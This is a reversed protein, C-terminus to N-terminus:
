VSRYLPRACGGLLLDVYKEANRRTLIRRGTFLNELIAITSIGMLTTALRQPDGRAEGAEIGEQFVQAIVDRRREMESLYDFYPHEEAPAFIMRLVMEVGIPDQQAQRFGDYLIRVLRSRLGGRIAASRLVRRHQQGFCDSMLERYLHEKSRFHYYLVPKTIGARECIERTSAAAYGKKAFLEIAAKLVANRGACM